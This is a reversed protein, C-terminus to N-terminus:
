RKEGALKAKEQWAKNVRNLEAALTDIQVRYPAGIEWCSKCWVIRYDGPSENDEKGICDDCLDRGCIMCRAFSCKLSQSLERGCIDCFRTSEEAGKLIRRTKTVM